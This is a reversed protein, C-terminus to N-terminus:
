GCTCVGSGNPADSCQGFNGDSKVCVVKGTGSVGTAHIEVAEIQTVYITPVRDLLDGITESLTIPILNGTGQEVFFGRTTTCPNITTGSSGTTCTEIVVGGSAGSGTSPSGRLRVSRGATNTGSVSTGTIVVDAASADQLGHGVILRNIPLTNSGFVGDGAANCVAATGIAICTDTVTASKGIAIANTAAASSSKGIAVGNTGAAASSVGVATSDTGAGSCACGNGSPSGGSAIVGWPAGNIDALLKDGQCRIVCRGTPAPTPTGNPTGTGTARARMNIAERDGDKNYEVARQKDGAPSGFPNLPNGPQACAVVVYLTVAGILACAVFAATNYWGRSM